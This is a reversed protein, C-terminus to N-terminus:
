ANARARRDIVKALVVGLVFAAGIVLFPNPGSDNRPPAHNPAVFELRPEVSVMPPEDLAAAAALGAYLGSRIMKRLM